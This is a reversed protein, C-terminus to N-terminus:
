RNTQIILSQLRSSVTKSIEGRHFHTSPEMIKLCEFIWVLQKKIRMRLISKASSWVVASRNQAGFCLSMCGGENLPDFPVRTSLPELKM